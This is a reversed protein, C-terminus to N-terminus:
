RPVQEFWAITTRNDRTKNVKGISASLENQGLVLVLFIPGKKEEQLHALSLKSTQRLNQQALYSDSQRHQAQHQKQQSSSAATTAAAEAAPAPAVATQQSHSPSFFVGGRLFMNNMRGGREWLCGTQGINDKKMKYVRTM